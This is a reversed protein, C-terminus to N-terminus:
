INDIPEYNHRAYVDPGSIIHSLFRSRTRQSIGWVRKVCKRWSVIFSSLHRGELNWLPSAYFSCCYSQFLRYRIGANCYHFRSMLTNTSRVLDFSAKEISRMQSGAGICTGLLVARECQPIVRGNLKLSVVPAHATGRDTCIIHQSKAANFMVSFEAAFEECTRLQEEAAPISPALLTLDDAYGFAGVFTSGIHCGIGRTRLRSLLEDVYVCFLIPSLVGGQKVGNKCSFTDTTLGNWRVNLRQNAYMDLLLQISMFCMGREVLLKFLRVFHVRDFAKSADLLLAHCESEQTTYLEIVEQIAFSCMTTSHRPKFGFQLASSSLVEAHKALIVHDLIKCLISGIAISRYNDSNQISKSPNKPISILTSLLLDQPFFSHKLCATLLVAIHVYLEGPADIFYDSTPADSGGSKGRKLKRAARKVEEVCIDHSCYCAGNRCSTAAREIVMTRLGRMEEVDYAVGNYLQDYKDRFLNGIEDDGKADDMSTPSQASSKAKKRM